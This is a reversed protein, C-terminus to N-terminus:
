TEREPDRGGVRLSAKLITQHAHLVELLERNAEERGTERDPAGAAGTGRSQEVRKATESQGAAIRGSDIGGPVPASHETDMLKSTREGTDPGQAPSEVMNTTAEQKRPGAGTAQVRGDNEQRSGSPNTGGPNTRVREAGHEETEPAIRLGTERMRRVCRIEIGRAAMRIWELM